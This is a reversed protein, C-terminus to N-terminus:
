INISQPVRSPMLYPYPLWRTANRAHIESEITALRAQFARLPADLRSDHAFNGLLGHDYHGLRTHHTDGLLLGLVMQFEAVDLPSLTALLAAAPDAVPEAGPPPAYAALPQNLVFSMLDQQPFNVAAHQASPIFVLHTLTDVLADVSSTPRAETVSTLRGGDPAALERFFAALETDAAVEADSPYYVRVVDSVWARIADWLPLVDDRYPHVGIADTDLLGRAELDNRPQSGTFSWSRVADVAVKRAADNHPVMVADVAGGPAMLMSEAADNIFLTGEHHPTLLVRVPHNRALTRRM